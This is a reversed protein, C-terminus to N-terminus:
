QISNCLAADRAFNQAMLGQMSSASTGAREMARSIAGTQNQLRNLCAQRQQQAQQQKQQQQQLAQQQIQQLEHRRQQQRQAEQQQLQQLQQQKQQQQSLEQQMQQQRLTEQLQQVQQQQMEQQSNAQQPAQVIPVQPSQKLEVNAKEVPRESAQEADKIKKWHEPTLALQKASRFDRANIADEVKMDLYRMNAQHASQANPEASNEVQPPAPSVPTFSIIKETESNVPCPMDSFMIQGSASRCQYTKGFAITAYFVGFLILGLSVRRVLM